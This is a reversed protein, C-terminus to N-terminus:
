RSDATLGIPGVDVPCNGDIELARLTGPNTWLSTGDAGLPPLPCILRFSTGLVVLLAVSPEAFM